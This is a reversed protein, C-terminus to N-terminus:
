PLDLEDDILVEVAIGALRAYALLILSPPERKGNEFEAISSRYLTIKPCDLRKILEEATLDRNTRIARLKEPLRDPKIREKRGM